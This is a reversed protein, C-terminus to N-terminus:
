RQRAPYVKCDAILCQTDFHYPAIEVIVVVLAAALMLAMFVAYSRFPLTLLLILGM